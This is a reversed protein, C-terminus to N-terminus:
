RAGHQFRGDLTNGYFDLARIRLLSIWQEPARTQLTRSLIHLYSPSVLMAKPENDLISDLCLIDFISCQEQVMKLMIRWPVGPLKDELFTLNCPPPPASPQSQLSWQALQTELYLTDQASAEAEGRSYGAFMLIDIYYTRLLERQEHESESM